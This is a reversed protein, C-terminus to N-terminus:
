TFVLTGNAATKTINMGVLMVEVHWEGAVSCSLKILSGPGVINTTNRTPTYTLITDDAASINVDKANSSTTSVINGTSYVDSGACTVIFTSTNEGTHKKFFISLRANVSAAPLVM